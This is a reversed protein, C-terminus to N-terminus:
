KIFILSLFGILFCYYGFFEFKGKRIVNLLFKIALCGFLFACVMGILYIWLNFSPNSQNLVDKSKLATAGLIAPLSLLFSFEAAKERKIGRFIGTSITLGSRSIGPLMAMAQAIGILFADFFKIKGEAKKFFKTLFLFSGTFFLMISVFLPSSFSKEVVEKFLIGLIGAPVSGLLILCFLNWNENSYTQDHELPNTRSRGGHIAGAKEGVANIMGWITRRFVIVVSLFTGFHLFVEFSIDDFKVKLLNEGLVLHGSSSIPLFETLGQLIGLAVSAYANM